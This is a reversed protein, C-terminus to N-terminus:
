RGPMPFTLEGELIRSTNNFFVMKMTTVAVNGFIEVEINLNNIGGTGWDSRKM